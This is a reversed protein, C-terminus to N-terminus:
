HARARRYRNYIRALEFGAGLVDRASLKSGAVDCWAQLPHEAVSRKLDPLGGREHLRKLRALLEVDFVWRSQFPAAFAERVAPSNRFLKAGCQTDYVVLDLVISAATAFVRGLYHRRHTRRISRGLLAVRSGLVAHLEPRDLMLHRMPAIAV